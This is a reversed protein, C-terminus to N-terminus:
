KWAWAKLDHGWGPCLPMPVLSALCDWSTEMYTNTGQSTRHDGQLEFFLGSWFLTSLMEALFAGQPTGAHNICNNMVMCHGSLFLHLLVPYHSLQIQVPWRINFDKYSRMRLLWKVWLEGDWWGVSGGPRTKGIKVYVTLAAVYKKDNIERRWFSILMTNRPSYNLLRKKM